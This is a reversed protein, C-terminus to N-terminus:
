GTYILCSNHTNRGHVKGEAAAAIKAKKAHKSGMLHQREHSESTYSVKCIECQGDYAKRKLPLKGSDYWFDFCTTSNKVSKSLSAAAHIVSLMFVVSEIHLMSM